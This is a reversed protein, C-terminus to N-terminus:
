LGKFEPVRKERFATLGEVRDRTPVIKRYAETELKLAAELDMELGRKVAAKIQRLALPANTAITRALELTEDKLLERPVVLNAVGYHLADAASFLRATCMWFLANSYGMIRPLRQTGGAGPIIGLAAERLGVEADNSLIRFDAALALEFGGGAATGQICAITPVPIDAVANVAAKIRQVASEVADEPMKEREKLDAGACFHRGRAEMIVVRIDERATIEGLRTAADWLEDVLQQNLANVPPRNLTLRAVPCSPERSVFEYEKM